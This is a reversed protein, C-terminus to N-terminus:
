GEMVKYKVGNVRKIGKGRTVVMRSNTDILKNTWKNTKTKYGVYSNFLINKDKEMQHIKSLMISWSEDMNDCIAIEYKKHHFLRGYHIHVVDERDLWRDTTVETTEM